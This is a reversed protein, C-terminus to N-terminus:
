RPGLPPAPYGSTEGEIARDTRVLKHGLMLLQLLQLTLTTQTCSGMSRRPTVVGWSIVLLPATRDTTRDDWQCHVRHGSRKRSRRQWRRCGLSPPVAGSDVRCRADARSAGPILRRSCAELRGTSCAGGSAAPEMCQSVADAAAVARALVAREARALAGAAREARAAGHACTRAAVCAAHAGVSRHAEGRALWLLIAHLAM